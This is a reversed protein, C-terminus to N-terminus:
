AMVSVMDLLPSGLSEDGAIGTGPSPRLAAERPRRKTVLHRSIEPFLPVTRISLIAM